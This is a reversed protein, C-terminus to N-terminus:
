ILFTPFIYNLFTFWPQQFACFKTFSTKCNGNPQHEHFVPPSPLPMTEDDEDTPVDLALSPYNTTAHRETSESISGNATEGNDRMTASSSPLPENMKDNDSIDVNVVSTDESKTNIYNELPLPLLPLIKYTLFHLLFNTSWNIKCSSNFYWNM